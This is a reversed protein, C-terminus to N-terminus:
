DKPYGFKEVWPALVPLIPALQGSYNRWQGIGEAYLPRRVQAASPSRLDVVPALKNFERMSDSWPVGIFDCVARVRSEFDAVMDEYRHDFINLPLKERYVTALEMIGAYFEAADKLDLFEFMTVNVRFHRRFCSFVVDRPDRLAFLVKAKPFLKSILPLKITNLPQKDVYVKGRVDLGLGRVHDWYVKRHHKLADDDLSALTDLGDPGNMFIRGPENLTGKEETAVVKPNSALVQELLTTGSRMFGLLFIHQETGGDSDEEDNVSAWKAAETARFYETLSNITGVARGESVQGTSSQRLEANELLYCDFAESYRGQGDLSDGLLGLASSRSQPGVKTDLLLTRLKAEAGTHDREASDVMALAYSATLDGPKLTLAKEALQRARENQRKRAAISAMSALADANNPDLDIAKGYSEEAADHNGLLAQALGRRFYSPSHRLNLAISADFHKLAEEPRSLAILSVGIANLLTPNPPAMSAAMEFDKVAEQHYGSAQLAFGRANFVTPHRLGKNIALNSLRGARGLDGSEVAASIEAVTDQTRNQGPDVNVM